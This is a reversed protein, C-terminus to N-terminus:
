LQNDTCFPKPESKDQVMSSRITNEILGKEKLKSEIEGVIKDAYGVMEKFHNLKRM